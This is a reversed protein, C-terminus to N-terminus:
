QANNKTIYHVVIGLVIQAISLGLPIFILKWLDFVTAETLIASLIGIIFIVLLIMSYIGIIIKLVVYFGTSYTKKPLIGKMLSFWGEIILDFLLEFPMLLCGM